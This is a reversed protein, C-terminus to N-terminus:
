AGGLTPYPSAAAPTFRAGDDRICCVPTVRRQADARPVHAVRQVAIRAVVDCKRPWASSVGLAAPRRQSHRRRLPRNFLDELIGETAQEAAHAFRERERLRELRKAQFGDWAGAIRENCVRYAALHEETGM